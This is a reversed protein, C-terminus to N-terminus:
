RSPKESRARRSRPSPAASVVRSAAFPVFSRPTRAVIAGSASSAAPPPLFVTVTRMSSGSAPRTKAGGAAGAEGNGWDVVPEMAAADREVERDGVAVAFVPAEFGLIEFEGDGVVLESLGAALM